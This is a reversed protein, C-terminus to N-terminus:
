NLNFFSNVETFFINLVKESDLIIDQEIRLISLNTFRTQEM